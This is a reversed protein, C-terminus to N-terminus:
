SAIRFMKANITLTGGLRLNGYKQVEHHSALTFTVKYDGPQLGVFRYRGSKDTSTTRTGTASEVAEVKVGPLAEGAGDVVTGEIKGSSVQAQLAAADFVMACVAIAALLRRLTM